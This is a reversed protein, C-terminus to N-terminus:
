FVAVKFEKFYHRTQISTLLALPVNSVILALCIGNVGWISGGWLALPFMIIIGLLGSLIQWKLRGISNLFVSFCNTVGTLLAWVGLLLYLGRNMITKGSWIYIFKEGFAVACIGAIVFIISTYLLTKGLIKKIWVIDGAEAAETYASWIPMLFAFHFYAVLMYLKKVLSYEGVNNLGFLKGIIFLDVSVFIFAIFQLAAFQLSKHWLEQTNTKVTEFPIPTFAWDRRKMFLWFALISSVLTIVFFSLNISFFSFKFDVFVVAVLLVAAKSFLSSFANWHSEQYSFFGATSLGFGLSLATIFVGVVFLSAGDGVLTVDHTKLFSMWPIYPKIVVAFVGVVISLTIFVYFVSLFYGRSNESAENKSYARSLRNRLANGFGLDFGLFSATFTMLLSWLGFQDPTFARALIGTLIFALLSAIVQSVTISVAGILM